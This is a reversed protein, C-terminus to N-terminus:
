PTPPPAPPVPAAAKLGLDFTNWTYRFLFALGTGLVLSTLLTSTAQDTDDSTALDVLGTAAAIAAALVSFVAVFAIGYAFAVLVRAASSSSGPELARLELLKRGHLYTLVASIVLILLAELVEKGGTGGGFESGMDFAGCDPFGPPCAPGSSGVLLWDFISKVFAFAGGITALLGVFTVVALYVAYPRRGTTDPDARGVVLAAIILVILGIFILPFLFGVFAFAAM